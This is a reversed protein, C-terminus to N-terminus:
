AKYAILPAALTRANIPQRRELSCQTLDITMESGAITVIAKIVVPENNDIPHSGFLSEAEYVGDPLADVVARCRAETQDFVVEIAREVVDRGYRGVIEDLRREALRCAAMQSKLDGMSSEPHRINDRILRWATDDLQGAKWLKIQDLQLGEMWPDSANVASFGTSLGGVDIWHARTAAFAVLEGGAFCPSYVVINNLHQGAVRQHNTIVVDGPAFGGAGYRAVGDRIVVGLDAVFHSVGGTNQALLRGGADLISCCYDRVEYIMMNYSTRQLVHSMENAIAPLVNRIVELTVVDISRDRGTTMDARVSIFSSIALRRSRSGIARVYWRRARTSRFSRPATSRPAARSRTANTFRVTWRDM